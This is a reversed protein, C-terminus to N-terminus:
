SFPFHLWLRTCFVQVDHIQHLVQAWCIYLILNLLLYVLLTTFIPFLDSCANRWLLYTPPLYACVLHEVNRDDLFHLHCGCHSAVVSCRRFDFLGILERPPLPTFFQREGTNSHSRVITCREPFCKPLKKFYRLCSRATRITPRWGLSPFCIHVSM